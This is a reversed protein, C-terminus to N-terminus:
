FLDSVHINIVISDVRVTVPTREDPKRVAANADDRVQRGDEDAKRAEAGCSSCRGFADIIQSSVNALKERAEEAESSAPADFDILESTIARNKLKGALAVNARPASDASVVATAIQLGNDPGPRLQPRAASVADRVQVQEDKTAVSAGPTAAQALLTAGALTMIIYAVTRM